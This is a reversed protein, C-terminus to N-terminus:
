DRMTRARAVLGEAAARAVDSVPEVTGFRVGEDACMELLVRRYADQRVVGGCCTFVAQQLTRASGDPLPQRLLQRVVAVISAALPRCAARVAQEAVPDPPTRTFCEMVAPSLDSIRLKQENAAKIADLGANLKHQGDATALEAFSVVEGLAENVSEIGFHAKIKSALPGDPEGADFADVAARIGCRSVDYASGDDGLLYGYGGRRTAQVVAGSEDVEVGVAVSGTGAIVAVGWPAEHKLLAGGMLLADNYVAVQRGFFPTLLESLRAQDLPTDCGSM